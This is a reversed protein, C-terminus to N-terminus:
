TKTPHTTSHRMLYSKPFGKEVLLQYLYKRQQTTYDKVFMCDGRKISIFHESLLDLFRSSDYDNKFTFLNFDDDNQVVVKNNLKSVMKLGDPSLYRRIFQKTTIKKKTQYDLFEEDIKYTFIKTITFDSDELKVKVMRGIDDKLFVPLLTGSMQELVALEYNSKVGNEYERDFIVGDSEGLLNNYFEMAKKHTRFKNIIKKKLKNKFLVILYNHNSNM